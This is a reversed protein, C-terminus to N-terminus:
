MRRQYSGVLKGIFEERQEKSHDYQVQCHIRSREDFEGMRYQLIQTLYRIANVHEMNERDYKKAVEPRLTVWPEHEQEVDADGDCQRGQRILIELIIKQLQFLM